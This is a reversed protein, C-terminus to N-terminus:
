TAILAWLKKAEDEIFAWMKNYMGQMLTAATKVRIM